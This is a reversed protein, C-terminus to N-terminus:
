SWIKLLWDFFSIIYLDFDIKCLQSLLIPHSGRWSDWQLELTRFWFLGLLMERVIPSYRLNCYVILSKASSRRKALICPDITLASWVSTSKLGQVRSAMRSRSWAALIIISISLNMNSSRWIRTLERSGRVCHYATGSDESVFGAM